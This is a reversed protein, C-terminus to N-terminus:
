CPTAGGTSSSTRLGTPPPSAPWSRSWSRRPKSGAELAGITVVLPDMPDTLRSRVGQLGVVVQAGVYVADVAQHPAAGHGSRGIITLDFLDAAANLAGAKFKLQGAPTFPDVHMGFVADVGDLVGDRIMAQAGGPPTEEAPQFILVVQGPLDARTRWLAEAVALLTATHFDHGCAHMVGPRTSAFELGTEEQIPLADMDARLAITRGPRGEIVARVGYGGVGSRHPIGLHTLRASVYAMTEKEQFSLEPRAHLWRRHAVGAAAVERALEALNM